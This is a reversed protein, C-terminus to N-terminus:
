SGGCGLLILEPELAFLPELAGPQLTLADTVPWGELLRDPAVIFSAELRRQNVLASHGDAGRLFFEFDPQEHSLQMATAADPAPCSSRAGTRRIATCCRW